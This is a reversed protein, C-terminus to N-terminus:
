LATQGIAGGDTVQGGIDAGSQAFVGDGTHDVTM